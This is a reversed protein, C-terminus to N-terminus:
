VCLSGMGVTLVIAWKRAVSISRPCMPDDDGEWSIEYPDKPANKHSLVLTQEHNDDCGHGNHTRVRSLPIAQTEGPTDTGNTTNLHSPSIDERKENSTSTRTEPSQDGIDGPSNM